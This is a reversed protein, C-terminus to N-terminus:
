RVLDLPSCRPVVTFVTTGLLLATPVPVPQMRQHAEEGAGAEGFLLSRDRKGERHVVRRCRGDRVPRDAM